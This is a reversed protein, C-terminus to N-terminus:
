VYATQLYPSEKNNLHKITNPTTPIPQKEPEHFYIKEEPRLFDLFKEQQRHEKNEKIAIGWTAATILAVIGLCSWETPTPNENKM